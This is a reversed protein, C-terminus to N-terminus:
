CELEKWFSGKCPRIRFQRVVLISKCDEFVVNGNEFVVNVGVNVGVENVGYSGRMAKGPIIRYRRSDTWVQIQINLVVFSMCSVLNIKYKCM